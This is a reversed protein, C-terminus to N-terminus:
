VETPGSQHKRNRIKEKHKIIQRGLKDISLDICAQVDPGSNSGIISERRDPKAIIEVVYNGGEKTIIIDVTQIKNFFNRLKSAKNRAYEQTDKSLSLHRGSISIQM